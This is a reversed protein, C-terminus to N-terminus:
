FPSCNPYTCAATGELCLDCTPKASAHVEAFPKRSELWAAVAKPYHEAEYETPLTNGFVDKRRDSKKQLRKTLHKMWGKDQEM